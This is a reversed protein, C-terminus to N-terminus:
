GIKASAHGPRAQRRDRCPRRDISRLDPSLSARDSLAVRESRRLAAGPLGDAAAAEGADFVEDDGDFREDVAPVVAALGEDPGLGGVLYEWM